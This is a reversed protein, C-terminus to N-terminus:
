SKKKTKVTNPKPAKDTQKVASKKEWAKLLTARQKEPIAKYEFSWGWVTSKLYDGHFAKARKPNDTEIRPEAMAVFLGTESNQLLFRDRNPLKFDKQPAISYKM